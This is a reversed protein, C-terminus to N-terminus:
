TNYGRLEDTAMTISADFAELKASCVFLLQRVEAPVDIFTDLKKALTLGESRLQVLQEILQEKDM